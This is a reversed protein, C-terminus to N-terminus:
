EVNKLADSKPIKRIKKMQLIAVFVYSLIGLVMMIVFNLPKTYYPLWGAYDAMAFRVAFRMLYNCIPITILISAVVSITTSMMYLKYIEKDRYGLIKVMSISQANKEIIQKSLLYMLLVFMVVGFAEFIVMMNGMSVQLQRSVKTLEDETIVSAVMKDDVDTLEQNSFYGNYYGNELEFADIFTDYNMFIAMSSPYDYIGAITFKYSKSGYQEDLTITDGKELGFKASYGDSIYVSDQSALNNDLKVYESDNMIGYVTIEESKLKGEETILTTVCFQEADEMETKAPEKLIYQYECLMKDLIEDQFHNLLPQFMIGFLLIFNAFFIGFCLTLYNPMNQFIVRLQFRTFIKIKTNLRFAKKKKKRSLDHRLFKLPSLQLKYILIFLNILFVIGVPIVTTRIFADANWVTEYAPLSYSGYYMNAFFTKLFTYGLINGTVAAVLVVLMPMALYHRVLESKKYGSARLTGIVSAEKAITNSTTIAFVFGVIVIVIYLFVTLLGRDGGMDDGTFIIAQNRYEPIYNEVTNGLLASEKVLLELFDDGMEKAATDDEPSEDYIWSYSYHLKANDFSDFGEPTMVAVGFQVADFMMDSTNAFLASYDSLAILGTISLEKGDITLNEGVSLNNNDAYMRDIAIENSNAPLEGEM